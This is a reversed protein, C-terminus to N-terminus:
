GVEKIFKFVRISGKGSLKVFYLGAPLTAIDVKDLSQVNLDAHIKGALDIIIISYKGDTEGAFFLHDTAPNPYLIIKQDNMENIGTTTCWPILASTTGFGDSMYFSYGSFDTIGQIIISDTYTQIGNGMHAFFNVVNGLNSITDGVPSIMQVSPYNMHNINGNYVAINIYGPTITDYYVTDVCILSFDPPNNNYISPFKLLSTSSISDEILYIGTYDVAMDATFEQWNNSNYVGYWNRQGLDNYFAVGIDYGQPGYFTGGLALLNPYMMSVSILYGDLGEMSKKWILNGAPSIKFITDNIGVVLVDDYSDTIVEYGIDGFGPQPPFATYNWQFTGTSDYKVLEYTPADVLFYMNGHADTTIRGAQITSDSFNLNGNIDYRFINDSVFSGSLIMQGYPDVTMAYTSITHSWVEIGNQNFQAIGNSGSVFIRNNQYVIKSFIGTNFSSTSDRQWIITGSTNVKMLLPRGISTATLGGALYCDGTSDVAMDYAMPEGIGNNDFILSWLLAGTDSYKYLYIKRVPIGTGINKYYGSLVYIGNNGDVLTRVPSLSASDPLTNMTQTWVPSNQAQLIESFTIHLLIIALLATFKMDM